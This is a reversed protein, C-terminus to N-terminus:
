SFGTKSFNFLYVIKNALQNEVNPDSDGGNSLCLKVNHAPLSLSLIKNSYLTSGFIDGTLGTVGYVSLVIAV